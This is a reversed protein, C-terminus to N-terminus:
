SEFTLRPIRATRESWDLEPTTDTPPDYTVDEWHVRRETKITLPHPPLIRRYTWSPDTPDEVEVVAQQLPRNVKSRDVLCSRRGMDRRAAETCDDQSYVSSAEQPVHTREPHAMWTDPLKARASKKAKAPKPQGAYQVPVAPPTSSDAATPNTKHSPQCLGVIKCLLQKLSCPM